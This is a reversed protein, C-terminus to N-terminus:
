FTQHLEEAYDGGVPFWLPVAQDAAGTNVAVLTYAAGSYRAFLLLGRSQCDGHLQRQPRRWNFPM